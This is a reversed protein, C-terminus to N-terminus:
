PRLRSVAERLHDGSGPLESERRLTDSDIRGVAEAAARAPEFSDERAIAVLAPVAEADRLRGLAFAAAGRVAPVRDRLSARLGTAAESAGLRGLARAARIRVDASTDRLCHILADGHSAEGLLGVLEAAWARMQPEGSELLALLEPVAPSGVALLAQAAQAHPVRRGVLAAVLSPVAEAAALCGLSRACASRVDRDSDRDLLDLLAPVASPSGMDGLRHAATARRQSRRSRLSAVEREIDGHQEFFRAV